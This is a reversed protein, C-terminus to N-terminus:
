PTARLTKGDRPVPETRTPQLPTTAPTPILRLQATLNTVTRTETGDAHPQTHYKTVKGNADTDTTTTTGDPQARQNVHIRGSQHTNGLGAEWSQRSNNSWGWRSARAQAAGTAMAAGAAAGAAAGTAENGKEM